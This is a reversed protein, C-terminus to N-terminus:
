THTFFADWARVTDLVYGHPELLRQMHMLRNADLVEVTLRQFTYEPFRFFEKLVPYEAGEIDLSLYDIVHPANHRQLLTLLKISRVWTEPTNRSAAEDRWAQPLFSVLGGWAGGLSFRVMQDDAIEVARDSHECAPRNAVMQQYLDPAAEVLLGRWHYYQELALTNSYRLGDNAGIEVFYGSEKGTLSDIVWDDQRTARQSYRM